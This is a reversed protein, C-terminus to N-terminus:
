SVIQDHDALADLISGTYDSASDIVNFLSLPCRPYAIHCEGVERGRREAWWCSPWTRPSLSTWGHSPRNAPLLKFNGCEADWGYATM